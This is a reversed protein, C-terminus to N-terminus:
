YFTSGRPYFRQDYVSIFAALGISKFTDRKELITCQIRAELNIYRGTHEIYEPQTVEVRPGTVNYASIEGLRLFERIM